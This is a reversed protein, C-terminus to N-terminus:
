NKPKRGLLLIFSLNINVIYSFDSIRKMSLLLPVM